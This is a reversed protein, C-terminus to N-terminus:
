GAIEDSFLGKSNCILAPTSIPSQLSLLLIQSHLYVDRAYRRHEQKSREGQSMQERQERIPALVIFRGLM